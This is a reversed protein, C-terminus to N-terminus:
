IVEAKLKEENEKSIKYGQKLGEMVGKIIAMTGQYKSGTPRTQDKIILTGDPAITLHKFNVDEVNTPGHPLTNQKLIQGSEPDILAVRNSWAFVINGNVLINLNANGIWRGSINANDLYTRWIQKGTTADAKAVFPGPPVPGDLPPFDGGVIFLEGPKRNNIYTAGQYSDESRWAYVQNPSTFSGTFTACPFLGSREGDAIEASNISSYYGPTSLSQACELEQEYLSVDGPIPGNAAKENSTLGIQGLRHEIKPEIVTWLLRYAVYLILIIIVIASWKFIKSKKM